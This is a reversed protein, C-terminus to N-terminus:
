PKDGTSAEPEWRRAFDVVDGILKRLAVGKTLGELVHWTAWTVLDQFTKLDDNM